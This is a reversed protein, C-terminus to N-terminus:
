HPEECWSRYTAALREVASPWALEGVRKQGAAAIRRALAPDEILRRLQGYLHPSAPAELLLADVGDALSAAFGTRTAVLACGCAMAEAGALGFSEYFSPAIAIACTQLAGVLSNRDALFPVVEVRACVDPAFYAEARFESGVGILRLRWGRFERLVRGVDEVILRVGKRAIWSGCFALVPPREAPAPLGHFEAAVANDIAVLRDAPQYLEEAAYRREFESVVVIGDASRFGSAFLRHADLQYWRRPRGDLTDAGLYRLAERRALPELGNSHSVLRYRRNRKLRLVAIALWSEGGYFEVVDFRARRLRRLAVLLMGIAIRWSRAARLSRLPEFHEPGYAEVDWGLARLGEVYSLAVYGSGQHRVLPCNSVTLVRM